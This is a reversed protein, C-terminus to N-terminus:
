EDFGDVPDWILRPDFAMASFMTLIVVTAFAVAGPGAEIQAITRFQVLAVLIAAVFIDVMSWRGVAEMMRYLRARLRPRWKSRRQATALLVFLAALKVGPLVISAFFIIAAILWDGSNWLFIAGSMITDRQSGFLSGSEIVPLVNAPVYLVMAMALLIWALLLSDPKRWHLTAGCRACALGVCEGAHRNVQACSHCVLLGSRAATPTM